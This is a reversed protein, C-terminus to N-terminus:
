IVVGKEAQTLARDGDRFGQRHKLFPRIPDGLSLVPATNDFTDILEQGGIQPFAFRLQPPMIDRQTPAGIALLHTELGIPIDQESARRLTALCCQGSAHALAEHFTAVLREHQIRRRM